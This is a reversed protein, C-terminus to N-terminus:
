DGTEEEAFASAAYGKEPLFATSNFRTTVGKCDQLYLWPEGWPDKASPIWRISNDTLTLGDVNHLTVPVGKGVAIDNGSIEINKVPLADFRRRDSGGGEPHMSIAIAPGSAKPMLIRNNKLVLNSAFPGEMWPGWTEFQIRLGSGVNQLTTNEILGGPAGNILTRQFNSHFWSNRIVFGEASRKGDMVVLALEPLDLDKGLEVLYEGKATYINNISNQPGDEVRKTSHVKAEGLFELSIADRFELVDGSGYAGEMFYRYEDVREVIRGFRGHINLNDDAGYASECRDLTPGRNAASLHFVDAGFAHLRNTRPKRTARVRLYTNGGEGGGEYVAMGPSSWIRVDEFRMGACDVSRLAAGTQVPAAVYDGPRLTEPIADPKCLVSRGRDVLQWMGRIHQHNIFAGSDDYFVFKREGNTERKGEPSRPRYGKFLGALVFGQERDIDLIRAQFWPPNTFDIELGRVIVNRCNKFLLAHIHPPEFWFTVGKAVIELNEIGELTSQRSWDAHFRYDGPPIVVTERGERSASRIQELIEQGKKRQAAAEEEDVEPFGTALRVDWRSTFPESVLDFVAEVEVYAEGAAVVFDVDSGRELDYATVDFGVRADEGPSFVYEWVPKGDILVYFDGSVGPTLKQLHGVIRVTGKTDSNWRRIVRYGPLAGFGTRSLYLGNRQVPQWLSDTFQAFLDFSAENNSSPDNPGKSYGYEWNNLGQERGFDMAPNTLADDFLAMSEGSKSLEQRWREERDLIRFREVGIRARLKDKETAVKGILQFEDVNHFSDLAYSGLNVSFTREENSPIVVANELYATGSTGPAVTVATGEPGGAEQFAVQLHGASTLDVKLGEILIDRDGATVTFWIPANGDGSGATTGQTENPSLGFSTFDSARPPNRDFYAARHLFLVSEQRNGGEHVQARGFGIGDHISDPVANPGVDEFSTNFNLSSLGALEPGVKSAQLRKSTKNGSDFDWEGLVSAQLCLNVSYFLCFIFCLRTLM